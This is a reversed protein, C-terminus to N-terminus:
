EDHYFIKQFKVSHTSKSGSPTVEIKFTLPDENEFDFPALYYVSDGERVEFFDLTRHQAFINSVTGSVKASEGGSSRRVVAINVLGKGKGRSIKYLKAIEPQIFSSNFASYFVKHEGFQQYSEKGAYASATVLASSTFLILLLFALRPNRSVKSQPDYLGIMKRNEM